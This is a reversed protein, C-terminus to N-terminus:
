KLFVVKLGGSTTQTGQTRMVATNGISTIHFMAPVKVDFWDEKSFHTLWKKRSQRKRGKMVPQKKSVVITSSPPGVPM